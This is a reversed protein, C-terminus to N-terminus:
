VTILVVVKRKKADRIKKEWIRTLKQVLASLDAGAEVYLHIEQKADSGKVTLLLGGSRSAITLTRITGGAGGYIRGPSSKVGAKTATQVVWVAEKIYTSHSDSVLGSEVLGKKTSM